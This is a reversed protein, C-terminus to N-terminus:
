FPWRTLRMPWMQRSLMLSPMPRFSRPLQM